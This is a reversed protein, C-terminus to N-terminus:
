LGSNSSASGAESQDYGLLKLSNWYAEEAKFQALLEAEYPRRALPRIEDGGRTSEVDGTITKYAPWRQMFGADYPLELKECARRMAAEPHHTFDEYRIFDGAAAQRAFAEFGSLFFPVNLRGDAIANQMIALRSISLWVDVPHRVMFLQLLSFDSQLSDALTLRFGPRDLWPLGTFDLHAWDRIVLHRMKQRSCREIVAIAENFSLVKGAQLAAVDNKNLLGFWGHAQILPNFMETAAPHIESLLAVGHMSGLCKCMLTSGSRALNHILRLRPRTQIQETMTRMTLTPCNTDHKGLLWDLTM